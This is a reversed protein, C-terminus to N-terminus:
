GRRVKPRAAEAALAAEFARHAWAAFADADDFLDAPAQWYSTLTRRGTKTDYAFPAMGAAEFDSRNSEGTKFYLVDDIVLGFMLGERFLGVGGFMRRPEVSGFGTFLDRLHELYEESVPM